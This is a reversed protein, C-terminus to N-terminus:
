LQDNWGNEYQLEDLTWWWSVNGQRFEELWSFQLMLNGKFVYESWIVVQKTRKLDKVDFLDISSCFDLYKVEM